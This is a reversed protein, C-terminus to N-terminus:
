CRFYDLASRVPPLSREVNTMSGPMHGSSPCVFFGPQNTHALSALSPPFSDGNFNWYKMEFWVEMMNTM